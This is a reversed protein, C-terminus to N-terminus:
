GWRPWAARAVSVALHFGVQALLDELQGNPKSSAQLLRLNKERTSESPVDTSRAKDQTVIDAALWSTLRCGAVQAFYDRGRPDPRVM